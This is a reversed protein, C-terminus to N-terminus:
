AIKSFTICFRIIYHVKKKVGPRFSPMKKSALLNKLTHEASPFFADSSNQKQNENINYEYSYSQDPNMVLFITM